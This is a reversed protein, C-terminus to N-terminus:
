LGKALMSYSYYVFALASALITVLFVIEAKTIQDPFQRFDCVQLYIAGGVIITIAVAITAFILIQNALLWNVITIDM